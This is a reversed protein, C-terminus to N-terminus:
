QVAERPGDRLDPEIGPRSIYWSGEARYGAAAFLAQSAKNNAQVEARLEAEPLLRRTLVLAVGAIGLRWREPAVYISVEYANGGACYELRLVGAPEGGHLIINFICEPDNLRASFWANHEDAEPARSTRFHRRTRPDRQWALLREADAAIAPRLYIAAGGHAHPPNLAAVLREAGLGDCLCAAARAMGRRATGDQTLHNLADILDRDVVNEADGLVLAAGAAHLSDAVGHQNDATCM